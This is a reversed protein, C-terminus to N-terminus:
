RLARAPTRRQRASAESRGTIDISGGEAVVAVETAIAGPASVARLELTVRAGDIRGGGRLVPEGTTSTVLAALGHDGDPRTLVIYKPTLEDTEEVHALVIATLTPQRGIVQPTTDRGTVVIHEREGCRFAAVAAPEVPRPGVQGAARLLREAQQRRRDDLRSSTVQVEPAQVQLDPVDLRPYAPLDMQLGHRHALLWAAVAAREEAFSSRARAAAERVREIDEPGGIWGLALAAEGVSRGDTESSLVSRLADLAPEGGVLGLTRVAAARVAPERQREICDLVAAVKESEALDLEPLLGLAAGLTLTTREGRLTRLVGEPTRDRPSGIIVAM